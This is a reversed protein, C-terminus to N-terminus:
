PKKMWDESRKRFSQTDRVPPPPPTPTAYKDKKMEKKLYDIAMDLQPDRGAVYDAPTIDVEYGKDPFVGFNEVYYGNEVDYDTFEPITVMGKDMFPKDSRIGVVGGWTTTGILPGLKMKRFNYPFIDGDSGANQNIVCAMPGTFTKSPYTGGEFNATKGFSMAVRRLRNLLLQSVNGGGNYRVDVVLARKRIQPYWDRFFSVLGPTGMDPIHIYGIEGDSMRSVYERNREVEGRYFLDGDDAVTNVRYTRAGEKTPKDNVTLLVEKGAKGWLWAYIDRDTTVDKGDIALLYDGVKIDVGQRALPAQNRSVWRDGALIREFKFRKSAEDVAFVAGLSGTGVMRPSDMTDGGGWVYTHGHGMEGILNGLIDNVDERSSARPLLAKYRDTMERWKVGTMDKMYFFDRYLRYTEEVIQSWEERPNVHKTAGSLQAAKDDDGPASSSASAVKIAGEKRYFLYERDRSFGYTQIGSGWTKEQKKDGTYSFQKVTMGRGGRPGEEEEEEGWPRRTGYYLKGKVAVLGTLDQPQGPFEFIRNEIGDFDIKVEEPKKKDKSDKGGREGRAGGRRPRESSSEEEDGEDGGDDDDAMLVSKPKDDGADGDEKAGDPSDKKEKAKKEKEEKEKKEKEEKAKKEDDEEYPDTPAFPDKGDKQLIVGYPRTMPGMIVEYDVRDGQRNFARNSFYFLYKGEPDWTVNFSTFMPDSIAHAKNEKTDYIYVREYESKETKAYALFRSDPSWDYDRLEWTDSDDILTVTKSTMDSWYVAGTEDGWALRNGDPAVALAYHYKGQRSDGPKTIQEEDEGTRAKARYIEETGSKDSVYAMWEDEAGAFEAGRERIGSTQTLAIARGSKAPANFVDGRSTVLFKKGDNSISINEIYDTVSSFRERVWPRDGQLSIAVDTAKKSATDYVAINAGHQFVLKSKGDGQLMRVDFDEYKTHQELDGGKSKMSWLNQRGDRETMFYIRDGVFVPSLDQGFYTTVKKFDQKSLSGVWIDDATGGGYRKWTRPQTMNRNFAVTDGDEAMDLFCAIGAPLLSPAGGDVSVKWQRRSFFGTERASHYIVNKGDPTWATPVDSWPHWTLRRPEGGSIPVVYTDRNGDYVASFALMKGDPSFRPHTEPGEVSTLRTAVGGTEPVLWIDGEACFAILGNSIDPDTYYGEYQAAVPAALLLAGAVAGRLSRRRTTRSDRM